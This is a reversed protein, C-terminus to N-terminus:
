SRNDVVAAVQELTVADLVQQKLARGSAKKSEVFSLVLGSIRVFDLQNPCVYTSGDIASLERPFSDLSAQVAANIGLLSIQQTARTSISEGNVVVSGNEILAATRADIEQIKEIKAATLKASYQLSLEQENPARLSGGDVVADQWSSVGDPLVPNRLWASQEALPPDNSVRYEKTIKHLWNAM